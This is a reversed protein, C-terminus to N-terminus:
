GKYGKPDEGDTGALPEDDADVDLGDTYLTDEEGELNLETDPNRTVEYAAHDVATTQEPGKSAAGRLRSEGTEADPSPSKNPAVKQDSM